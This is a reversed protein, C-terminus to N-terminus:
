LRTKLEAELVEQYEPSGAMLIMVKGVLITGWNVIVAGEGTTMNFEIDRIDIDSIKRHRTTFTKATWEAIDLKQAIITPYSAGNYRPNCEIAPFSVGSATEVVAVDFAFIGKMGRETLWYAMSDVMEWPEYCAPYKNGQHAFGDLVQETCALRIPHGDVVRYQMNLFIESLVEAQIQVPVHDEFQRMAEVFAKKDACRYIGVGSVSIAAKLYCPFEIKELAEADIHKVSDFCLTQPVEVGLQDAVTMFNNKSNIYEVTGLWEHDGWNRYENPGFYFVSPFHNIHKGLQDMGVDWIVNQTHTLGVRGYHTTIDEWLPKLEATLQIIDEPESMGLARGSYLHNGKVGEATCHMIDHNIIYKGSPLYGHDIAASM